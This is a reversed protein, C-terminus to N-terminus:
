VLREKTPNDSHSVYVPVIMASLSGTTTSTVGSHSTVFAPADAQLYSSGVLESKVVQDTERKYSKKQALYKQVDNHM